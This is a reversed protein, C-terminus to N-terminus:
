TLSPNPKFEPRLPLSDILNKLATRLRPQTGSHLSLWKTGDDATTGTLVIRGHRTNFVAVHNDAVDRTGDGYIVGVIEAYSQIEVLASALTQADTAPKGVKALRQATAASDGTDNFIPALQETPANMGYLELAEAPGLAAMITGPLDSGAEDIVYSDPGRLAVVELDDGKALCFRNVVGDVVWRVAIAWHPRYLARLRDALDRHVADGVLLERATLSEAAAAMAADHDVVNDYRGIADLVVPVEDIQLTELLFQMEDLSLVVAELMSPGHGAGLVTM